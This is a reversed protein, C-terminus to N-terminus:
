KVLSKEAILNELYELAAKRTGFLDPYKEMYKGHGLQITLRTIQYGYRVLGRPYIYKDYIEGILRSYDNALKPDIIFKSLNVTLYIRGSPLYGDLLSHVATCLEKLEEKTRVAIASHASLHLIRKDDDFEVIINDFDIM